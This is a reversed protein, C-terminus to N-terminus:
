RTRVGLAIEVAAADREARLMVRRKEVLNWAQVLLHRPLLEGFQMVIYQLFLHQEILLNERLMGIEAWAENISAKSKDDSFVASGHQLDSSSPHATAMSSSTM